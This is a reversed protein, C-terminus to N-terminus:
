RYGIGHYYFGIERMKAGDLMNRGDFLNSSRMEQQIAQWNLDKYQPWDTCIVIGDAGKAASEVDQCQTVGQNAYTKPIVAVPDHVNVEAGGLLLQHIVQFSRTERLDDTDPKFAIGLVVLKKGKLSTLRERICEVMYQPQNDNVDAVKQLITLPQGYENGTQILAKVDKPFCSGGYGIGAHLFHPGIRPDLGMGRAVDKVNVGLQDCLKAVENMYSIKTALFSNSAYKIMEATRTTTFVVPCKVSQYLKSLVQSARESSSGIVVRDPNLSDYLASGERLFEPNSAVDFPHPHSCSLRIWKAVKETTTVPVTSKTVIIKYGNMYKGIDSAAQKIYSLDAKGDSRSPTGVCIFFLDNSQIAGRTDTTFRINQEKVHKRLLEELGPEYFYLKGKQLAEVKAPDIDLGTVRHGWEAFVVGTTTGVYGMGIILINM